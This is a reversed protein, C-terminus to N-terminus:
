TRELCVSDLFAPGKSSKPIRWDPGYWWALYKEVSAPILMHIDNMHAFVTPEIMEPDLKMHGCDNHHVAFPSGAREHFFALDVIVGDKEYARQMPLHGWDISRVLRFPHPLSPIPTKGDDREIRMFDIDTDHPILRRDRWLGLMTGAGIWMGKPTLIDAAEKLVSYAAPNSALPNLDFPAHKVVKLKM